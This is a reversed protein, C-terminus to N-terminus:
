FRWELPVRLQRPEVPHSHIDEIGGRPEGQLRSKYFYQIDDAQVNAVNLVAVRLRTGLLFQYGVDASTLTPPRARVSNDEILPYAGFHRLRASGLLGRQTPSWSVGGAMVRELAGPIRNAVAPLDLRARAFSLDADLALEPRPRYFNAFTIGRRRSAVSAETAGADGVFLLESDLDLTWLALTSRLGRLRSLRLGVEAGRSRVLPDVRSAADGSVPDITITTGRADNSHFGFDGSLYLETAAAPVIVLSAKPSAIAARRLGSNGPRDSRVAFTHGDGRLGLVSRLWPRWRSEAALFVGTGTQAVRDERVTAFRVQRETRHLGLSGILDARSQVGVRLLHTVGAAVVQQSHTANGGVVTRRDTQSFQDGREPDDLFFTFNSFLLLDSRVGYLQVEQIANGSVRRWGGSLSYRGGSGGDTSDVQGFRGIVRSAVARDPIQDNANWRSRYVLALLSFSSAGRDITYRAVGSVKRLRGARLWATTRRRRAESCSTAM